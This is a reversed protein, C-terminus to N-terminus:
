LAKDKGTQWALPVSAGILTAMVAPDLEKHICLVTGVVLASVYALWSAWDRANM